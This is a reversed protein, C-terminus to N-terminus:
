TIKPIPMKRKAAFNETANLLNWASVNTTFYGEESHMPAFYVRGPLNIVTVTAKFMQLIARITSIPM